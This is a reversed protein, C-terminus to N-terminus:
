AAELAALRAEQAAILFLALQDSRVGFRDGAETGALDGAEWADHCLFAYSCSPAEGEVLPDILGEDAMIAWVQQAIVGVHDRAGTLFQFVGIDAAIRKAARLEADNLPRVETKERGDSTNISGTGFYATRGRFSATGIDYSNDAGPRYHGDSQWRWALTGDAAINRNFWIAMDPSGPVMGFCNNTITNQTFSWMAGTLGSSANNAIDGVIGRGPNVDAFNIAYNASAGNHVYKGAANRWIFEGRTSYGGAISATAIPIRDTGAPAGIAGLGWVDTDAM